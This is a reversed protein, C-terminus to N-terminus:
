CIISDFLIKGLIIFGVLFNVASYVLHMKGQDAYKQSIEPVAILPEGLGKVVVLDGVLEVVQLVVHLQRLTEYEEM